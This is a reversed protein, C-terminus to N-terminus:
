MSPISIFKVCILHDNVLVHVLYYHILGHIYIFHSLRSVDLLLNVFHWFTPIFLTLLLNCNWQGNGVLCLVSGLEKDLLYALTWGVSVHGVKLEHSGLSCFTAFGRHM